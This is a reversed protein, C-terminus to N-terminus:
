GSSRGVGFDIGRSRGRAVGCLSLFIDVADDTNVAREAKRKQLVLRGPVQFAVITRNM